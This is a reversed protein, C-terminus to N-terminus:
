HFIFFAWNAIIDKCLRNNSTTHMDVTFLANTLFDVIIMMRMVKKGTNATPYM